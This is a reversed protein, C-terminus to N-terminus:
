GRIVNIKINFKDELIKIQLQLNDSDIEPQSKKVWESIGLESDRGASSNNINKFNCLKLFPEIQRIYYNSYSNYRIEVAQLNSIQQLGTRILDDETFKKM